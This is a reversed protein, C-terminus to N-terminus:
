CLFCIEEIKPKEIFLLFGQSPKKFIQFVAETYNKVQRRYDELISEHAELQHTKFDVVVVKDPYLIVRDPRLTSNKFFLFRERLFLKVKENLSPFFLKIQPLETLAKIPKIFDVEMDWNSPKEGSVFLAKKVLSHIREFDEWTKVFSLILHLIEGRKKRKLEEILGRLSKIESHKIKLYKVKGVSM